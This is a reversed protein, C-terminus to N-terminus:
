RTLSHFIQVTRLTKRRHIPLAVRVRSGSRSEHHLLVTSKDASSLLLRSEFKLNSSVYTIIFIFAM